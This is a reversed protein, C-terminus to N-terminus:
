SIWPSPRGSTGEVASPDPDIELGDHREVGRVVLDDGDIELAVSPGGVDVPREVDPQHGVVDRRQDAVQM